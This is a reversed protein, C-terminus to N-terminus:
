TVITSGHQTQTRAAIQYRDPHDCFVLTGKINAYRCERPEPVLCDVIEGIGYIAARCIAPDPLVRGRPPPNPQTM